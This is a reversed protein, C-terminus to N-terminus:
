KHNIFDSGLMISIIIIITILFFTNIYGNNNISDNLTSIFCSKNNSEGLLFFLNFIIGSLLNYGLLFSAIVLYIKKKM